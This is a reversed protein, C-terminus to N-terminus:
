ETDLRRMGTSLFSSLLSRFVKEKGRAWATHIFLGYRFWGGIEIGRKHYLSLRLLKLCYEGKNSTGRPQGIEGDRSESVTNLTLKAV